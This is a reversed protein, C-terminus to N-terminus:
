GRSRRAIAWGIAVHVGGFGAAMWADGWAPPTALAALGLAMFAVGAATVLRRSVLGTSVIACGYCLLWLGPLHAARGFGVLAATLAAGTVLPPLLLLTFRRAVPTDLPQGVRHAETVLSMTGLSAALGADVLWTSLWEADTAARAAVLATVLATAGMAIWGLGPVAAFASARDMTERIFRLDSRARKGLDLPPTLRPDSPVM